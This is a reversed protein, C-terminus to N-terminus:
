TFNMYFTQGTHLNGLQYFLFQHTFVQYFIRNDGNLEQVKFYRHHTFHSPRTREINGTVANGQEFCQTHGTVQRNIATTVPDGHNTFLVALTTDEIM